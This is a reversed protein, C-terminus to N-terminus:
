YFVHRMWSYFFYLNLFIIFSFSCALVINYTEILMISILLFSLNTIFLSHENLNKMM